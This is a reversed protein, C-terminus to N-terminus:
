LSDVDPKMNRLTGLVFRSLHNIKEMIEWPLWIQDNHAGVLLFALFDTVIGDRFFQSRFSYTTVQLCKNFCTKLWFRVAM